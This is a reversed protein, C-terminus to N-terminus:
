VAGLLRGPVARRQRLQHVAARSAGAAALLHAADAAYQVVHLARGHLARGIENGRDGAAPRLPRALEIGPGVREALREALQEDAVGEVGGLAGDRHLVDLAERRQRAVAEVGVGVLGLRGAVRQE